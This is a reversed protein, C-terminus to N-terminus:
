IDIASYDSQSGDELLPIRAGACQQRAQRNEKCSDVKIVSFNIGYIAVLHNSVYKKVHFM